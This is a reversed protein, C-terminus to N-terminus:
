ATERFVAKIIKLIRGFQNRKLRNLVVIVLGLYVTPLFAPYFKNTFKFRNKISYIDSLESKSKDHGSGITAGEKHYVRSQYCYSTKYGKARGRESWDMEEYYLFYDECMLGVDMVFEKSVLMSAGIAYDIDVEELDYSGNDLSFSAVHKSVAFWKNFKGGIGQIINPKNYYLLKSSIIGVKQEKTKCSKAKDILATLANIDVVTDNNLLWIYKFDNQLLAYSIGINNGAAFGNNAKSQILILPNDLKDTINKSLLTNSHEYCSFVVPKNVPPFSLPQLNNSKNIYVNINGNAWEKIYMLSNDFSSNDVVVVQFNPYNLRLVSELCEITDRWGNYNVLIIYVKPLGCDRKFLMGAKNTSLVL